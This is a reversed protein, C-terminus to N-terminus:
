QNNYIIEKHQINNKLLYKDVLIARKNIMIKFQNVGIFINKIKNKVKKM